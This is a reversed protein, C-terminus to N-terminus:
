EVDYGSGDCVGCREEDSVVADLTGGDASIVGVYGVGFCAACEERTDADQPISIQEDSM